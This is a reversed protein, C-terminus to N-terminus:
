KPYSRRQNGMQVHKKHKRAVAVLMEGERPTYSCPKEVYVHKGATCALIAAPAHWHNPTAVVVAQVANDDLVRRLDNVIRPARNSIKQVEGAAREARGQDPDCVCAIEVGPLRQFGRILDTGRGGTGIIGLVVRDAAPQAATAQGALTLGAAATTGIFHRRDMHELM